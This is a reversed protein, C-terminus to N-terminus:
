PRDSRRTPRIMSCTQRSPPRKSTRQFVDANRGVPACVERHALVRSATLKYEVVLAACLRAYAADYADQTGAFGCRYVGNNVDRYIAAMLEDMEERRDAPYLDPAGPRHHDVWETSLDESM